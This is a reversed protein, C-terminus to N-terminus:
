KKIKRSKKVNRSIYPQSNERNTTNQIKQTRSKKNKAKKDLTVNKLLKIYIEDSIVTNNINDYENKLIKYNDEINIAFGPLTNYNKLINDTM